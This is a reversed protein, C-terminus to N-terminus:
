AAPQAYTSIVVTGFDQSNFRCKKLGWVSWASIEKMRGFDDSQEAWQYVTRSGDLGMGFGIAAAQAGLLVARRVTSISAGTSSHVGNTVDQAARLIIGNYEGLAGSFIPNKSVNGGSMAYKQIDQWGGSVPSTRISTQQQPHIYCVYKPQGDINIPQVPNDGVMALEKARDLLSVQFTDSATLSQDNAASGAWVQRGSSPAHVTNFGTFKPGTSAGPVNAPTYGCVHNFFTKSMRESWWRVLADKASARIDIASRQADMTGGLDVANGLENIVLQDTYFSLRQANGTARENESFGAGSINTRLNYIVSAGKGKSFDSKRHIISDESEGVMKMIDCNERVAVLLESSWNQRANVDGVPFYVTTAM